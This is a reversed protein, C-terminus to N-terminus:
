HHMDAGGIISVGAHYFTSALYDKRVEVRDEKPQSQAQHAKSVGARVIGNESESAYVVLMLPLSPVM